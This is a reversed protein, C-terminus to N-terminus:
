CRFYEGLIRVFPRTHSDTDTHTPRVEKQGLGRGGETERGTRGLEENQAWRALPGSRNRFDSKKSPTNNTMVCGCGNLAM